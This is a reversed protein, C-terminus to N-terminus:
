WEGIMKLASETWITLRGYDGGPALQETNLTSPTTVEVGAINGVGREIGRLESVVLLVSCPVRYKRGRNRGRGARVHKGRTARRVDPHVGMKKFIELIEQTKFVTEIEDTAVVPLTLAMRFRHGRGRVYDRVSTAYLASRRAKQREKRNIKRNWQKEPKPPHARRGGVNPPSEAARRGQSLRQVRAVGRGKGWTSVAHMMGAKSSPGYPQRRNARHVNVAKRILDPRLPEDFATPLYVSRVTNGDLDYVNVTRKTPKPGKGKIKRVVKKGRVKRKAGASRTPKKMRDRPQGSQASSSSSTASSTSPDTVNTKAM